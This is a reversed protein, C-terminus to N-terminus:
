KKKKGRAKEVISMEDFWKKLSRKHILYFSFVCIFLVFWIMLYRIGLMNNEWPTLIFTLFLFLFGGIFGTVAFCIMFDDLFKWDAIITLGIAKLLSRFLGLVAVFILSGFISIFILIPANNNLAKLWDYYEFSFEM